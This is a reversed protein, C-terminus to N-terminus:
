AEVESLNMKLGEVPSDQGVLPRTLNLPQIFEYLASLTQSLLYDWWSAFDGWLLSLSFEYWGSSIRHATGCSQSNRAHELGVHYHPTRLISRAWPIRQGHWCLSALHWHLSHVTSSCFPRSFPVSSSAALLPPGPSRLIQQAKPWKHPGLVIWAM